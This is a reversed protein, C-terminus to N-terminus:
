DGPLMVELQHNVAMIDVIGDVKGLNDGVEMLNRQEKLFLLLEDVPTGKSVASDQSRFTDENDPGVQNHTIISSCDVVRIEDSV